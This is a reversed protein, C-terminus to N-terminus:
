ELVKILGQSAEISVMYHQGDESKIRVPFHGGTIDLGLLIWMKGNQDVVKDGPNLETNLGAIDKHSNWEFEWFIEPDQEYFSVLWHVAQDRKTAHGEAIHVSHKEALARLTLYAEEYFSTLNSMFFQVRPNMRLFSIMIPM